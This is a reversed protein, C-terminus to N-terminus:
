WRMGEIVLKYEKRKKKKGMRARVRGIVGALQPFVYIESFYSVAFGVASLVLIFVKFDFSM